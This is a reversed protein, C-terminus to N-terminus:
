EYVHYLMLEHIHALMEQEHRADPVTDGWEIRGDKHYTATYYTKQFFFSIRWGPLSTFLPKYQFHTFM